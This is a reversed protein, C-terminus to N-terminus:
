VTLCVDPLWTVCTVWGVVREIARRMCRVQSYAEEESDVDDIASVREAMGRDRDRDRDRDGRDRGGDETDVPRTRPCSMYFCDWRMGDWRMM